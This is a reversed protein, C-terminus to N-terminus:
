SKDKCVIGEMNNNHCLNYFPCRISGYKICNGFNRPFIKAKIARNVENYNEVVNEVLVESVEEVLVQSRATPRLTEKWEGGCRVGNSTADCTKHRGGSGDNGCAKCIKLKNKSINKNLVIFGAHRTGEFKESLSFVYLSLQPSKRVADEEYERASTKLDIVVPKDIGKWKFVFDAFGQIKDGEENDLQIEVQTGLVEEVNADFIRKFEKLMYYGKRKLCLWNAYNFITQEQTTLNNYGQENKSYVARELEAEPNEFGAQRLENWDEGRLLDKDMDKDSYTFELLTPLETPIGNINQVRWTNHFVELAQDFDKTLAYTEGAKDLATGFLLASSQTTQRYGKIYHYEYSKPCDVYKTSASHSLKIM